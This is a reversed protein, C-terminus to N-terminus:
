LYITEFTSLDFIALESNKAAIKLATKKCDIVTSVDLFLRNEDIWGGMCLNDDKIFNDLNEIYFSRLVDVFENKPMKNFNFFIREATKITAVAFGKGTKFENQSISFTFGKKEILTKYIEAFISPLNKLNSNKM